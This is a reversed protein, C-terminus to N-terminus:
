LAAIMGESLSCQTELDFHRIAFDRGSIGMAKRDKESCFFLSLVANAMSEPNDPEFVVGCGAESLIRASAGEAGLLVPKGCAMYIQLKSPIIGWRHPARKLHVLLADAMGLYEVIEIEPVAPLFLVNSLGKSATLEALREKEAGEGVIVYRVDEYDKTMLATKVVVDLGQPKGINGAYLVVFAGDLGLKRKLGSGDTAKYRRHDVWNYIFKTKREDAGRNKLHAAMEPALTVIMDSLRYALKETWELFRVLWRQKIYSLAIPAEPWSDQVDLVIRGGRFFRICTATLALFFPYAVVYIVDPRKGFVAGFFSTVTFTGYHILRKVTSARDKTTYLWVRTVTLLKGPKEKSMLKKRYGPYLCGKPYSPFGTVVSINHGRNAYHEALEGVRRASGMEPPFILSIMTINM